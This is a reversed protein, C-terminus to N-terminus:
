VARPFREEIERPYLTHNLAEEVSILGAGIRENLSTELTLMGEARGSHMINRLQHTKGERVLNRVAQNAILVEFAAVLGGETKPILRQSIVGAISAALQVRIQTQREPSFM